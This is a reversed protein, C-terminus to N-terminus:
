ERDENRSRASCLRRRIRLYGLAGLVIGGLFLANWELAMGTFALVAGLICFVANLRKEQRELM